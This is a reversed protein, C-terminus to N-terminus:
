TLIDDLIKLDLALNRRGCEEKAREYYNVGKLQVKGIKKRKGTIANVIHWFRNATGLEVYWPGPYYKTECVKCHTFNIPTNGNYGYPHTMTKGPDEQTLQKGCMSCHEFETGCKKCHDM